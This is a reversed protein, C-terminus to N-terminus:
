RGTPQIVNTIMPQRAHVRRALEHRARLEASTLQEPSRGIHSVRPDAPTMAAGTATCRRGNDLDIAYVETGPILRLVTGHGGYVAVRDGPAYDSM